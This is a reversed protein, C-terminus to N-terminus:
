KEHDVDNYSICKKLNDLIAEGSGSCFQTWHQTGFIDSYTIRGYFIIFRKGNTFDQRFADDPVFTEPGKPGHKVITLNIPIPAGPFIVGVPYLRTHPHGPSFDFSFDEGKNLVTAIVDGEIIRAPTKGTNTMQTSLPIFTGNLPYSTPNPVSIWARQDVRLANIQARWQFFYIIATLFLLGAAVKTWLTQNNQQATNEDRATKQQQKLDDALDIKVGSEVYVHRNTSKEECGSHHPQAPPNNHRHKSKNSM